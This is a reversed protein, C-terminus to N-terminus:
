PSSKDLDAVDTRPSRAFPNSFFPILSVAKSFTQTSRIFCTDESAELFLTGAWTSRVFRRGRSNLVFTNLMLASERNDPERASPRSYETSEYIGCLDVEELSLKVTQTKGAPIVLNDAKTAIQYM